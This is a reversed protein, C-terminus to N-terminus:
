FHGMLQFTSPLSSSSAKDAGSVFITGATNMMMEEQHEKDRAQHLTALSFTYLLPKATGEAQFAIMKFNLHPCLCTSVISKKVAESDWLLRKTAESM